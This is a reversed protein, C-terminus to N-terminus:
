LLLEYRSYHCLSSATILVDYVNLTNFLNFSVVKLNYVQFIGVSNLSFRGRQSREPGGGDGGVQLIVQM